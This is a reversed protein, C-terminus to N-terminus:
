QSIRRTGCWTGWHSGQAGPRRGEQRGRQVAKLPVGRMVWHGAFTHRMTHWGIPRLGARKHARLLTDRCADNKLSSPPERPM